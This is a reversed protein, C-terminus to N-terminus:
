RHGRDAGPRRRSGAGLSRCVEERASEWAHGALLRARPEPWRSSAPVYVDRRRLAERLRELVSFAYARRDLLGDAGTVLRQWVGTALELPVEQTHVRRRGGMSRLADLAILM